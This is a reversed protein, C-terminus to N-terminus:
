AATPIRRITTLTLAILTVAIVAVPQSTWPALLALAVGTGVITAEAPRPGTRRSHVLWVVALYVAVPLALAYGATIDSVHSHGTAHDVSVSLGAGVAAVSAFILFHGYGWVFAATNGALRDHGPRTFYLWWMVFPIVPTAMAVVVIDVPVDGAWDTVSQIAVVALVSEGIVILTLLGYREAIHHPHWPTQGAQEAWWPVALELVALAFWLLINLEDAVVAMVIWGAQATTTGVVYRVATPRHEPDSRVVRLWQAVLGARMIVYGTVVISHDGDFARSVGAALVLIGVMQVFVKARYLADDTDFASAFWAFGMWAWWIAFFVVGFSVLADGIAEGESTAHHLAAAAQAIAVVFTLDYLLELTTAARAQENPDRGVMPRLLTRM